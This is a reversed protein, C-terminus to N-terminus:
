IFPSGSSIPLCILLSVELSEADNAGAAQLVRRLLGLDFQFAILNEHRSDCTYTNPEFLVDQIHHVATVLETELLTKTEGSAADLLLHFVPVVASM